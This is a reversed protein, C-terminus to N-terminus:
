ARERHREPLAVIKQDKLQRVEEELRALRQEYQPAQRELLPEIGERIQQTIAMILRDVEATRARVFVADLAEEYITRNKDSLEKLDAYIHNLAQTAGKTKQPM